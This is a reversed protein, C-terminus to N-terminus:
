AVKDLWKNMVRNIKIAFKAVIRFVWYCINFPYVIFGSMVEEYFLFGLGPKYYDQNDFKFRAVLLCLLLYGGLSSIFIVLM